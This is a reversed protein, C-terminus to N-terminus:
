THSSQTQVLGTLTHAPLLLLAVSATRPSYIGSRGMRKEPTVIRRITEGPYLNSNSPRTQGRCCLTTKTNSTFPKLLVCVMIFFKVDQTCTNTGCPILHFGPLTSETRLGSTPCLVGRCGGPRGHNVVLLNFLSM